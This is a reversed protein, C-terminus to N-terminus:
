TKVKKSKKKRVKTFRGDEMEYHPRVWVRDDMSADDGEEPKERYAYAPVAANEIRCKDPDILIEYVTKTKHHQVLTGVPFM